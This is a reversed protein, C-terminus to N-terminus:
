ATRRAPTSHFSNLLREEARELETRLDPTLPGDASLYLNLRTALPHMPQLRVPATGDGIGEPYAIAILDRVDAHGDVPGPLFPAIKEMLRPSPRQQGNVWRSVAAPSVKAARAFTTPNPYTTRALANAFYEGFAKAGQVQAEAADMVVGDKGVPFAYPRRTRGTM